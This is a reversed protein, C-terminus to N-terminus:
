NVFKFSSSDFWHYLNRKSVMLLIYNLDGYVMPISWCGNGVSSSPEVSINNVFEAVVSSNKILVKPITDFSPQSDVFRKRDGCPTIATQSANLSWSIERHLTWPRCIKRTIIEKKRVSFGISDVIKFETLTLFTHFFNM